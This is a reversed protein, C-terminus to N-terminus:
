RIGTIRSTPLVRQEVAIWCTAVGMGELGPMAPEVVGLTAAVAVAADFANDGASLMQAGVQAALPHAAPDDWPAFQSNAASRAYHSGRLRAFESTTRGQGISPGDFM